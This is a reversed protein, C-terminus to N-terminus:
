HIEGSQIQFISASKLTTGDFSGMNTTTIITQVKSNLISLLFRRRTHDLESMVDDLMVVPYEGTEERMLEMEALMYSLVATRQQGQSGFTKTDVDNILFCVDDRHPGVMTHGRLMEERQISNLEEFFLNELFSPSFDDYNHYPDGKTFFPCYVVNLDEVSNSINRHMRNSLENLRSLVRYRRVMIKTGLEILQRNWVPLQSLIRRNEFAEKLLRNRQRVVREYKLLTKRYVPDIQCIQIDLFRRRDGPSGKVLQLSDPTFLVAHLNGVFSNATVTKNNVLLKKPSTRSVNLDLDVDALRQIRGYVKATSANHHILEVDRTTRYSKSLALVYMAELLNTKGQANNGVFINLGPNLEVTQSKYNRFNELRITKIWM